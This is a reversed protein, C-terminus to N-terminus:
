NNVGHHFGYSETTLAKFEYGMSSLSELIQPLAEVTTTKGAADHMLVCILSQKKARNIVNNAIVSAKVKAASADESDVNWDFYSYGMSPLLSTLRTMIGKNFKSATNSSGGPFRTIMSKIGTEREVTASIANLDALFADESAYITKYVHQNAHLGIAHGADHIKKLYQTKSTGVVFFTAKANYEGLIDLIKLTNDSPGDDFTLYCVKGKETATNNKSSSSSSTPKYKLSSNEQKLSSNEKQLSSNKSELNSNKETLSNNASELESVSAKLSSNAEEASSLRETIESNTKDKQELESSLKSYGSSHSVSNYGLISCAVVLIVIIATLILNTKSKFFNM